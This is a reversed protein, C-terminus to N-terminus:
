LSRKGMGEIYVWCVATTTGIGSEIEDIKGIPQNNTSTLTFTNGDSAYCTAGVDTAAWNSGKAVTLRCTGEDAVEIRDGATTASQLLIGVFTAGLGVLNNVNGSEDTEVAAGAFLVGTSGMRVVERQGRWKRPTPRTLDAM